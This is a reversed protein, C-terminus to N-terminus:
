QLCVPDFLVVMNWCYESHSTKYSRSSNLVHHNLGLHNKSTKPKQHNMEGKCMTLFQFTKLM